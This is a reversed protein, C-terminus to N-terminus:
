FEIRWVIKSLLTTRFPSWGADGSEAIQNIVLFLDSGPRPIWNLRFNLIIEDDENNWQGAVAGFLDPTIAFDARGGAEDVRFTDGELEIRNRAFDGSLTLHRSARWRGNIGYELRTGLYFDGGSIEIGGSFPRAGFSSLDASWRTFWYTGAPIGAGEFLEFPEDPSDARRSVNFEFGDGTRLTFAFPVVEAYLTQLDGTGDDTYVTLELPKIEVQQVVPLFRPRPNLSLETAWRQYSSRRLFGAEPNFTSDVRSWSADFELFDNPYSIFLRHALGTPRAADSTHTQVLALGAELEREGLFESTAYTLDFGYAANTRGPEHRAVALVGISSEDLLDQKWRVVGFTSAPEAGKQETRLAMAGLTSGAHRGLVRVGGTIPIETRDAALGIRRSYFPQADDGIEFDFFESGELFFTRKEPFFLSFRTLNVEERDSEVQAFDPRATVNVKWNPTPLWNLDLGVHGVGRSESGDRWEGGGIAHPRAEVLTTGSVERVGTLRGARSVQELDFDRSWGQWLLQERKRRINREFNIGWGASVDSRFRLSSFPVRFEAFWGEASRRARVDWVGDWDRNVTGGNGAILADARAGNPNTVFLYGTRDDDFTDLVFEFNDDSGWSFDRAMATARIRDPQADFGWFGVYLADRDFLVAVETRESAPMGFDLERQTFNSIHVARQWAPEDLRGDIRIPETIQLAVITSPESQQARVGRAACATVLLARVVARVRM